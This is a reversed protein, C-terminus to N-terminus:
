RRLAVVLAYALLTAAEKQTLAPKRGSAHSIVELMYLGMNRKDLAKDFAKLHGPPAGDLYRHTLERLWELSPNVTYTATVAAAPNGAKDRAGVCNVTHKGSVATTAPTAETALGSGQDTTRCSVAPVADAAYVGGNTIGTVKTVPATKDVNVTVTDAATNGANDAATGTVGTGAGEASVVQAAPCSAVASVADTCVFSVTPETRFWGAANPQGEVAPTIVPATQDVNVTVRATATNGARDTVTGAIELGAGDTTVPM